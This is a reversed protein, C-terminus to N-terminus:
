YYINLLISLIFSLSIYSLNFWVYLLGKYMEEEFFNLILLNNDTIWFYAVFLRDVNLSFM